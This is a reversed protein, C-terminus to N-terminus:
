QRALNHVFALAMAWLIHIYDIGLVSVQIRHVHRMCRIRYALSRDQEVLWPGTRPPRHAAQFALVVWLPQRRRLLLQGERMEREVHSVPGAAVAPSRTRRRDTRHAGSFRSVLEPEASTRGQEEEVCRREQEEVCRRGQAGVCNRGRAEVCSKGRARPAGVAIRRPSLELGLAFVWAAVHAAMGVTRLLSQEWGGAVTSKTMVEVELLHRRAPRDGLVLVLVASVICPQRRGRAWSM